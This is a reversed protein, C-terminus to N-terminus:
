WMCSYIRAQILVDGKAELALATLARYNVIEVHEDLLGVM